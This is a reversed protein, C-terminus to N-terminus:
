EMGLYEKVRRIVADDSGGQHLKRAVMFPKADLLRHLFDASARGSNIYYCLPANERYAIRWGYRKQLEDHIAWLCNDIATESINTRYM